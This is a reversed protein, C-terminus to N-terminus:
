SPQIVKRMVCHNMGKPREYTFGAREFMSRTANYLFSAAVKKGATDQPYAEAVGGGAYAILNLAGDLAAAAVGKRRYRRDVFFCTLRFDPLPAGGAARADTPWPRTTSGPAGATAWGAATIGPMCIPSRM